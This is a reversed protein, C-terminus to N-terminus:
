RAPILGVSALSDTGIQPRSEQQRTPANAELHPRGPQATRARQPRPRHRTGRNVRPGHRLDEVGHAAVGQGSGVQCLLVPDGTQTAHFASAISAVLLYTARVSDNVGNWM